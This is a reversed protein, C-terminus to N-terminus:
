RLANSWDVEDDEDEKKVFERKKVEIEDIVDEVVKEVVKEVKEVAKEVKKEIEKIEEVIKEKHNYCRGGDKTPRSCCMSKGGRTIPFGCKGSKKEEKVKVEKVKKEKVENIKEKAEVEDKGKHNHCRGGDKTVRSCCSEVGGKKIPFGCKGSEKKVEKKVEAKMEFLAKFENCAEESLKYKECLAVIMEISAM